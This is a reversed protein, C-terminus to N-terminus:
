SAQDIKAHGRWESVAATFDDISENEPWSDGLLERPDTVPKVGQELMLEEISPHGQRLYRQSTPQETKTLRM